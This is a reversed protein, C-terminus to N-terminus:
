GHKGEQLKKESQQVVAQSKERTVRKEWLKLSEIVTSIQHGNLFIFDDVGTLRKIYAQVASDSDHTIIGAAHMESWLSRIKRYTPESANRNAPAKRVKFGSAKLHDLVKKRGTWDLDSASKVRAVAWLMARYTDDDIGLERQAIKILRTERKKIDAAVAPKM